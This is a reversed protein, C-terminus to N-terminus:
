DHRLSSTEGLQSEGAACLRCAAAVDASDQLKELILESGLTQAAGAATFGQHETIHSTASSDILRLTWM